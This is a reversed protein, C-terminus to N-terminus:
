KKKQRQRIGLGILESASLDNLNIGRGSSIGSEIKLPEEKGTAQKTELYENQRRLVELEIEGETASTEILEKANLNLHPYKSMQEQAKLGMGAQWVRMEAQYLKDEAEANKKTLKQERELSALKSVYAQRKEPDEVLAEDVERKLLDIYANREALEAKHQEIEAIAKKAEAQALSLQRTTAELGKSVAKQFDAETKYTPEVKPETPKAGEITSGAREVQTETGKLEEM